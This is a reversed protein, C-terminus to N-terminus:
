LVVEFLLKTAPFIPFYHKKGQMATTSPVNWLEVYFVYSFMFRWLDLSTMETICDSYLICELIGDFYLDYSYLYEIVYLKYSKMLYISTFCDYTNRYDDMFYFHKIYVVQILSTLFM